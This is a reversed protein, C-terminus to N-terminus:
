AIPICQMTNENRYFLMVTLEYCNVDSQMVVPQKSYFDSM